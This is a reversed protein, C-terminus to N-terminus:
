TQGTPGPTQNANKANQKCKERKKRPPMKKPKEGLSKCSKEPIMNTWITGPRIQMQKCKERKKKPCKKQKKRPGLSKCKKGFYHKDLQDGGPALTRLAHLGRKCWGSCLSGRGKRTLEGPCSQGGREEPLPGTVEKSRSTSQFRSIMPPQCRSM